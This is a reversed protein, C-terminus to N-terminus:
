FGSWNLLEASSPISSQAGKRTVVISSVGGAFKIAYESNNGNFALAFAATFCDGAATTDVADVKKAPFFQHMDKKILVAGNDGLTAVVVKAGRQILVKGATLIDDRCETEHGTLIALETENPKIVDVYKFIDLPFNKIAPAPDLVVIKNRRKAEKCVYAVVEIPIELQVIVVDCADILRINKDIATCDICKNAGQIVIIRNNGDPEIMVFANGTPVGKIRAIGSTDVNVLQLNSVLMEGFSDDGVAGIMSVNGGLKAAAYAQNAGKGGPILSMTKGLVTEGNRPFKSIEISFDMNLSGVVLIKKM